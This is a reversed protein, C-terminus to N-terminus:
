QVWEVLLRFLEQRKEPIGQQLMEELIHQYGHLTLENGFEGALLRAECFQRWQDKEKENLTEPWNRARYRFYLASLRSDEFDPVWEALQEPSKRLLTECRRRDTNPIFGAYLAHDVDQIGIDATRLYLEELRSILSSDALLMQRHEEVVQWDIQWQAAMEPSLTNTPALAPSKNLHVGKLAIREVSEPLDAARTYLNEEMEDVSMGLLFQPDRRLDYVIIENKNRPHQLLPVVPAICGQDVPYMGSVHLVVGYERLDLLKAAEHKSRLNFYYAYLRPKLTKILRALAITARVDALADHAGDHEIGNTATLEELKFSVSGDEKRPWHIDEPRLAYALRMLDIIDWRSNGNQWERAYPDIFNRYFGFRTVEDDFRLTNYGVGCTGPASFASHIRQFFNAENIGKAAAEQPSIGTLMAAEPHPLFDDSPRCYLMIPEGVEELVTNTRIAAFQAPRDRRPNVGWTEYDHWLLTIDAM